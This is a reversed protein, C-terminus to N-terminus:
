EHQYRVRASVTDSGDVIGAVSDDDLVHRRAFALAYANVIAFGEDNPINSCGGYGFLQHCGGEIDIWTLDFGAKDFLAQAGVDDESGTMLLTPIAIADYGDDGFFEPREGGAMPIAVDIRPDALDTEFVALEDATCGNPLADTGCAAEISAVDFRAGSVAWATYTGRSHGSMAVRTLDARGDLEADAALADLAARLDLPRHFFHATPVPDVANLLTDDKHDPAVAIWGHSAFHRMLDASNGAYGRHGHSHVLVPYGDAYAPRLLSADVFVDDDEFLMSYTPTEGGEDATPYWLHIALTRTGDPAAYSTEFTRYGVNFAGPEGVAFGLPDPLPEPADPPDGAGCGLWLPLLLM